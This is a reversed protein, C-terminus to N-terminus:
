FTVIEFLLASDFAAVLRLQPVSSPNAYLNALPEPRNVDLVLWRAGFQRAAALLDGVNGYPIVISSLGTYYTFLPPNNVLVIPDEGAPDSQSEEHRAQERLWRGIAQDTEGPQNWVPRSADLGIVRGRYVFVSLGVAMVVLAASFVSRATSVKWTRRRQAIWGILAELGIPVAADAYPLLAGSSHFLGGRDGAFTFAVTMSLFLLTAYLLAARLIVAGRRQWLGIVILPALFILGVEALWHLAGSAVGNLKALLVDDFGCDLLHNVDFRVGYAFLEDYRCLWLAQSGASSLPTGIVALNRLFWPLVVLGYGILLLVFASPQLIFIRIRKNELRTIQFQALFLVALLLVGDARSLHALGACSGALLFQKRNLLTEPRGWYLAAAGFVAFPAFSEPVGWYPLYFASFITLLAALWAHRRSPSIRWAIFFTLVPLLAALLVFPLQAARYNLGFVSQSLAALISPLPMWYLHSPHPLSQPQDLYNWVYPDTFGEGQALRQGGVAYYAADMYNPQTQPLAALARVVLALMFVLWVDRRPVPLNVM